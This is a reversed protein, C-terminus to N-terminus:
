SGTEELGQIHVTLKLHEKKKKKEENGKNASISIKNM